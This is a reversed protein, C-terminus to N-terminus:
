RSANLAGKAIAAMDAGRETVWRVNDDEWLWVVRQLTERLRTNEHQLSIIANVAAATDIPATEEKMADM